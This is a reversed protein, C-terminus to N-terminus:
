GFLTWVMAFTFKSIIPPPGLIVDISRSQSPSTGPISLAFNLSSASCVFFVHGTETASAPVSILSVARNFLQGRGAVAAVIERLRRDTSSAFAHALPFRECFRRKDTDRRSRCQPQNWLGASFWDARCLFRSGINKQLRLQQGFGARCVQCVRKETTFRDGRFRALSGQRCALVDLPLACPRTGARYDRCAVTQSR